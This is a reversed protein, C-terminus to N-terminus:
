RSCFRRKLMRRKAFNLTATTPLQLARLGTKNPPPWATARTATLITRFTRTPTAILINYGGAEPKLEGPTEIIDAGFKKAMELEGANSLLWLGLKGYKKVTACLNKNAKPMNAWATVPSPVPLWIYLENQKLISQLEALTPEDVAGDYHIQANPFRALVKKIYETNSGTFGVRAGSKEVAFLSSGNVRKGATILLAVYEPFLNLNIM